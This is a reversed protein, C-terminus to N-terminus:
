GEKRKNIVRQLEEKHATIEMLASPLLKGAIDINIGESEFRKLYQALGRYVNENQLEKKLAKEIYDNLKDVDKNTIACDFDKSFHAAKEGSYINVAKKLSALGTKYHELALSLQFSNFIM